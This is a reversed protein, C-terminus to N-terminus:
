APDEAVAGPGVAAHRGRRRSRRELWRSPTTDPTWAFVMGSGVIGLAMGIVYGGLNTLVLSAISVIMAMLAAFHRQGPSVLSVVAATLMIGGIVWGSVAATGMSVTASFTTLVPSIIFYAGLSLVVCGWFPRTKRFGRFRKRLMAARDRVASGSSTASLPEEESM